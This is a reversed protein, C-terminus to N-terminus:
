CVLQSQHHYRREMKAHLHPRLQKVVPFAAMIDADESMEKVYASLNLTDMIEAGEQPKRGFDM